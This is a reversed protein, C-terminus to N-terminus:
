LNLLQKKKADFEEQTLAGVDLLNKLKLIEDSVSINANSSAKSNREKVQIMYSELDRKFKIAMQTQNANFFVKNEDMVENYNARLLGRQVTQNTPLDLKIWGNDTTLFHKRPESLSIGSLETIACTKEPIALTKAIKNDRNIVIKDDYAYIIGNVGEFKFKLESM